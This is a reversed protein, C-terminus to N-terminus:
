HTFIVILICFSIPLHFHFVHIDGTSEHDFVHYDSEAYAMSGYAIRPINQQIEIVFRNHM